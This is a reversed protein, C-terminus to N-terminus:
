LINGKVFEVVSPMIDNKLILASKQLCCGASKDISWEEDDDDDEISVM